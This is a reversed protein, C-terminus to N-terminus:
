PRCPPMTSLGSRVDLHKKFISGLGDRALTPPIGFRSETSSPAPYGLSVVDYQWGNVVNLVAKVMEKPSMAPGSDITVPRRYGTAYVKVHTGGVDVVMVKKASEPPQQM